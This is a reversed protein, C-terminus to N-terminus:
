SDATLLLVEAAIQDVLVPLAARVPESLVDAVQDTSMEVGFVTARSLDRGLVRALALAAAVGFGHSSSGPTEGGVESAAMRHLSGPQAGSQMADVLVLRQDERWENLLLTGPRDRTSIDVTGPALKRQVMEAVLWGLRDDGFPSGVGIVHVRAMM